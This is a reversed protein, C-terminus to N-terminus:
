GVPAVISGIGQGLGGVLNGVTSLAGNLAGATSDFYNGAGRMPAIDPLEAYNAPVTGMGPPGYRHIITVEDDPNPRGDLSTCYFYLFKEM